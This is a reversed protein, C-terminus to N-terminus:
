GLCGECCQCGLLVEVVSDMGNGKAKDGGDMVIFNEVADGDQLKSLVAIVEMLLDTFKGDVKFVLLVLNFHWITKLQIYAMDVGLDRNTTSILIGFPDLTTIISM